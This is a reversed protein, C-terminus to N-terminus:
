AVGRIKNVVGSWQPSNLVRCQQRTMTYVLLAVEDPFYDEVKAELHFGFHEDLKRAEDNSERVQGIIKTVGLQTFPYDFIAAMWERSAAGGVWIHAHIISGNYGDFIVGAVPEGDQKACVICVALPSATYELKHCLFPLYTPSTTLVKV